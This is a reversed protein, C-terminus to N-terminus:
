PFMGEHHMYVAVNGKSSELPEFTYVARDVLHEDDHVAIEELCICGERGLVAYALFRLYKAPRSCMTDIKVLPIQLCLGPPAEPVPILILRIYGPPPAMTMTM